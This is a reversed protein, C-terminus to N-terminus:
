KNERQTDREKGLKQAVGSTSCGRLLEGCVGGSASGEPTETGEEGGEAQSRHALLPMKVNFKAERIAWLAALSWGCWSHWLFKLWAPQKSAQRDRKSFLIFLLLVIELKPHTLSVSTFLLPNPKWIQPCYLNPFTISASQHQAPLVTGESAKEDNTEQKHCMDSAFRSGSKAFIHM